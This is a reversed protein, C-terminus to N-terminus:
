FILEGIAEFVKGVISTFWSLLAATWHLNMLLGGAIFAIVAPGLARGLGGGAQNRSFFAAGFKLLAFIGLVIAMLRAVQVLIGGLGTEFFSKTDAIIADDVDGAKDNNFLEDDFTSKIGDDEVQSNDNQADALPAYAVVSVFAFLAAALVRATASRSSQRHSTPTATSKAM